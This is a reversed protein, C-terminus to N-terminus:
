KEIVLWASFTTATQIYIMNPTIGLGHAVTQASGNGTQEASVFVVVPHYKVM